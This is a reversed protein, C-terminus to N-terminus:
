IWTIFSCHPTQRAGISSKQQHTLNIWVYAVCIYLMHSHPVNFMGVHHYDDVPHHYRLLGHPMQLWLICILGSPWMRVRMRHMPDQWIGSQKYSAYLLSHLLQQLKAVNMRLEYSNPQRRIIGNYVNLNCNATKQALFVIITMANISVM